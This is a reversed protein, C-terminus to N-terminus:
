NPTPRPALKLMSPSSTPTACGGLRRASAHVSRSSSGSADPRIINYHRRWSEIVIEADCLTSFIEGDLLEDRLRANFSEIFGNGRPSGPHHLRDKRRRRQGVRVVRNTDAAEHAASSPAAGGQSGAGKLRHKM